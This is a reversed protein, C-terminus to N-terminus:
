QQSLLKQLDEGNLPKSFYYGQISDCSLRKVIELQQVTEVGEAVIQLGIQNAIRIINDVINAAQESEVIDDIFSKDIKVTTLPLTRLYTLSSYGTGFDDLAIGICLNRLYTLREVAIDMAHIFLSETIELELLHPPLSTEELISEVLEIFSDSLLQMGSVNVSVSYELNNKNNFAKLFACSERLVFEGIEIIATTEEAIPIFEAPSVMGRKPHFWRVLAEFSNYGDKSLSFKPQYYVVFEKNKVAYFLEQQIAAKYELKESMRPDFLLFSNKGANKVEYMCVEAEKLLTELSKKCKGTCIECHHGDCYNCVSIGVSVTANVSFGDIEFQRDFVQTIQKAFTIISDEEYPGEKCFVFEDGAIRFVQYEPHDQIIQIFLAGIQTLLLDGISHSYLNNIYKLNDVDVYLLATLTSKNHVLTSHEYRSFLFARNLLGTLTDYFAITELKNNSTSIENVMAELSHHLSMIESSEAFSMKELVYNGQAVSNMSNIIKNIPKSIHGRLWRHSIFFFIILLCGGLITISAVIRDRIKYVAAMSKGVGIAGVTDGSENVFPSYTAIYPIGKIMIKGSYRNSHDIVEDRIKSDMVVGISPEGNIEITTAVRVNSAFISADLNTIHSFNSVNQATSLKVGALVSGVISGKAGHIPTFAFTYLGEVGNGDVWTMPLAANSNGGQEALSIVTAGCNTYEAITQDNIMVQVFSLDAVDYHQIVMDLLADTEIHNSYDSKDITTAVGEVLNVLRQKEIDLIMEDFAQIGHTLTESVDKEYINYFISIAIICGSLIIMFIVVFVFLNLRFLLSTRKKM